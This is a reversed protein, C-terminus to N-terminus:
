RVIFEATDTATQGGRGLNGSCDSGEDSHRSDAPYGGPSHTGGFKGAIAYSVGDVV